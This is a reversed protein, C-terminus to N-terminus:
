CKEQGHTEGTIEKITDSARSAIGCLLPSTVVGLDNLGVISCAIDYLATAHPVLKKVSIYGSPQRPKECMAEISRRCVSCVIAMQKGNARLTHIYCYRHVALVVEPRIKLDASIVDTSFGGILQFIIQERINASCKKALSVAERIRMVTEHGSNAKHGIEHDTYGQQILSRILEEKQISIM